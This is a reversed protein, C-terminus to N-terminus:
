RPKEKKGPRTAKEKGGSAKGVLQRLRVDKGTEKGAAADEERFTALLINREGTRSFDYIVRILGDPTNIVSVLGYVWLAFGAVGLLLELKIM